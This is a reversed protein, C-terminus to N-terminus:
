STSNYAAPNTNDRAKLQEVEDHLYALSVSTDLLKETLEAQASRLQGMKTRCVTRCDQCIWGTQSVIKRLATFVNPSLNSCQNDFRFLCIDCCIVSECRAQCRSCTGSAVDRNASQETISSSAVSRGAKDPTRSKKFVMTAVTTSSTRKGSVDSVGTTFRFEDCSPYLM